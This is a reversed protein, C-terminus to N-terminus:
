QVVQFIPSSEILEVNFAESRIPFIAKLDRRFENSKTSIKWSRDTEQAFTFDEGKDCIHRVMEEIQRATRSYFTERKYNPSPAIKRAPSTTYFDLDYQDPVIQALNEIPVGDLVEKQADTLLMGQKVAAEAGHRIITAHGDLEETTSDSTKVLKNDGNLEIKGQELRVMEAPPKILTSFLTKNIPAVFPSFASRKEYVLRAKLPKPRRYGALMQADEDEISLKEYFARLSDYAQDREDSTKAGNILALAKEEAAKIWDKHPKEQLLYALMRSVSVAKPGYVQYATDILGGDGSGSVVVECDEFAQPLWYSPGVAKGNLREREWGVALL